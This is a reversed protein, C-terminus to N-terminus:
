NGLPETEFSWKQSLKVHGDVAPDSIYEDHPGLELDQGKTSLADILSTSLGSISLRWPEKLTSTYKTYDRQKAYKLIREMLWDEHNLVYEKLQSLM